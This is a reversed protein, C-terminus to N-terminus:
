KYTRISGIIKPNNKDVDSFNVIDLNGTLDLDALLAKPVDFVVTGTQSTDPQIDKGQWMFSDSQPGNEADFDETYQNDGLLLFVQNQGTDFTVPGNLKNKVELTAVVFMGKASATGYGESGGTVSKTQELNILRATLEPLVLVSGKDVVTVKQGDSDCTGENGVDPNIGLEDCSALDDSSSSTSTKIASKTAAKKQGDGTALLAIGVVAGVGVLAVLGILVPKPIHITMSLGGEEEFLVAADSGDEHSKVTM